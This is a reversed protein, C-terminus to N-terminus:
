REVLLESMTALPDMKTKKKDVGPAVALTKSAIDSAQPFGNNRVEGLLHSRSLITNTRKVRNQSRDRICMESGM